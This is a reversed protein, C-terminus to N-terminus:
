GSLRAAYAQLEARLQAVRQALGAQRSVGEAHDALQRGVHQELDDRLVTGGDPQDRWHGRVVHGDALHQKVWVQGTRARSRQRLREMQRQRARAADARLYGGENRKRQVPRSRPM